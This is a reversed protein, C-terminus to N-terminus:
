CVSESFGSLRLVVLSGPAAVLLVNEEKLESDDGLM